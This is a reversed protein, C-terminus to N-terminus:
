PRRKHELKLGLIKCNIALSLVHGNGFGVAIDNGVTDFCSVDADSSLRLVPISGYYIWQDSVWLEGLWDDRIHKKETAVDTLGIQGINTVLREGTTSFKVYTVPSTIEISHYPRLPTDWLETAFTLFRSLTSRQVPGSLDWLHVARYDLASALQRGDQSFVLRQGNPLIKGFSVCHCDSHNLLRKLKEGTATNWLTVSNDLSASVLRRGDPSFAVAKAALAGSVRDPHGVLTKLEKGTETHWIKILGDSSASAFRQGVPSFSVAKVGGSHGTLTDLESSTASHGTLTDLERSTATDWIKITADSSSSALRRGDLSFSVAQVRSSHGALTRPERGTRRTSWLKITGDDSGSALQRGDRSFAIANVEGSHGVLTELKNGTEADWLKVSRSSATALQKGNPSFAVSNVIHTHDALTGLAESTATNWLKVTVDFPPRILRANWSASVLFQGDPSFAIASVIHRPHVFTKLEEGTATDHLKVTGDWSGSALQRGNPSFAIAIVFHSHSAITKLVEGTATDWLKVTNDSSASALQRGDPSFSVSNVQDSHGELTQILSSWEEEVKPLRNLWTPIKGLNEERIISHQPSFIVASSYVQLPWRAITQYHRRLFRAADSLLVPIAAGDEVMGRLANLGHIFRPLENLLSLCELWELIRTRFFVYFEGQSDAAQQIAQTGWGDQLHQLLFTSCYSLPGLKVNEKGIAEQSSGPLPLNGINMELSESLYSLCSLSIHEHGYATHTALISRGDHGRLYDPATKHVFELVTERMRIFSSCRDILTALPIRDDRLGTVSIVEEFRLPRHVLLMVKLLRTCSEIIIPKGSVVQHLIRAYLGYLGPLLSEITALAEDPDVNELRACVLSIWLFTGEAKEILAAEVQRCRVAGYDHRRDLDAARKAAYTRVAQTIHGENLELNILVQDTDGLLEQKAVDLSSSTLLWKAKSNLGTRVVLKLFEAMGNDQCEDLGDVIVYVRRSKCLELMELFIDWLTRWSTLDKHFREHATDWRRRLPEYLAKQQTVLRRILGKIIAEVTNLKYDDNRCFFYTVVTSPKQPLSIQDIIRITMMTKGKGAGGRIWLLSVGDEDWREYQTDRFIWDIAEPLLKDKERLWNKVKQTDPCRLARLCTDNINDFTDENFYFRDGVTFQANDNVSINQLNHGSKREIAAM